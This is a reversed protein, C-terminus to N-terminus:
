QVYVRARTRVSSNMSPRWSASMSSASYETSSRFRRASTIASAQIVITKRSPKKWPSGCGAFMRTMRGSRIPSTSKPSAPFSVSSSRVFAVRRNMSTAFSFM